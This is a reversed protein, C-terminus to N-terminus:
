TASHPASVDAPEQLGPAADNAVAAVGVPGPAAVPSPAAPTLGQGASPAPAVPAPASASLSHVTAEILVDLVAPDLKVGMAAAMRLAEVKKAPGSGPINAYLQEAAAVALAVDREAADRANNPLHALVLKYVLMVVPILVPLLAALTLLTNDLGTVDLSALIMM